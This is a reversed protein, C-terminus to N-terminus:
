RRDSGTPSPAAPRWRDLRKDYVYQQAVEGGRLLDGGGSPWHEVWALGADQDEAWLTFENRRGVRVDESALRLRGGRWVVYGDDALRARLGADDGPAAREAVLRVYLTQSSIDVFEQAYVRMAAEDFPNVKITVSITDANEDGYTKTLSSGLPSRALDKVASDLVQGADEGYAQVGVSVFDALGLSLERAAEAYAVASSLKIEPLLDAQGVGVLTRACDLGACPDALWAPRQQARASVPMLGLVAAVAAAKM